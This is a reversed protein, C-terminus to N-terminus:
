PTPTAAFLDAGQGLWWRVGTKKFVRGRRGAATLIRLCRSCLPEEHRRWSAAINRDGSCATLGHIEAPTRPCFGCTFSLWTM